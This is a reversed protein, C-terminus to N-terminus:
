PDTEDAFFPMRQIRTECLKGAMEVTKSSGLRTDYAPPLNRWQEHSNAMTLITTM